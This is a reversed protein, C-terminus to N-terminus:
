AARALTEAESDGIGLNAYAVPTAHEYEVVEVIRNDRLEVKFLRVDRSARQGATTALGGTAELFVSAGDEGVTWDKDLLALRGRTEAIAVIHDLVDAKGDIVRGPEHDGDAGLTIAVRAHDALVAGVAAPDGAELGAFFARTVTLANRQIRNM